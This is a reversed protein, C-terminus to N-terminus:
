SLFQIMWLDLMASRLEKETMRREHKLKVTDQWHSFEQQRKEKYLDSIQKELSSMKVMDSTLELQYIATQTRCLEEDIDSGLSEKLKQREQILSNIEDISKKLLSLRDSIVRALVNRSKFPLMSYGVPSVSGGDVPHYGVSYSFDDEKEGPMAWVAIRRKIHMTSHPYLIPVEQSLQAGPLM